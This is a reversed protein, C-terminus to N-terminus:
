TISNSSSLLSLSFCPGRSAGGQGDLKEDALVKADSM